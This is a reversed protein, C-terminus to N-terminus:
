AIFRMRSCPHPCRRTIMIHTGSVICLILRDPSREEGMSHDYGSSDLCTLVRVCDFSHYRRVLAAEPQDYPVM